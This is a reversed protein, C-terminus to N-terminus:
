LIFLLYIFRCCLSNPNSNTTVLPKITSIKFSAMWLHFIFQFSVYSVCPCQLYWNFSPHDHKFQHHYKLFKVWAIDGWLAFDNSITIFTVVIEEVVVMMLNYELINGLQEGDKVKVGQETWFLHPTDRLLLLTKQCLQSLFLFRKLRKQDTCNSKYGVYLRWFIYVLVVCPGCLCCKSKDVV